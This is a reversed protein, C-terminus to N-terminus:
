NVLDEVIEKSKTFRQREGGVSTPTTAGELAPYMPLLSSTNSELNLLPTREKPDIGIDVSSGLEDRNLSPLAGVETLLEPFHKHMAAKSYWGALSSIQGQFVM